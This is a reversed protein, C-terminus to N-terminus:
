GVLLGNVTSLGAPVLWGGGATLYSRTFVYYTDGGTTVTSQIDGYSPSGIVTLSPGAVGAITGSATGPVSGENFDYYALLNPASASTHEHIDQLVEASTREDSWVRVEDVAGGGAPDLTPVGSGDLSAASAGITFPNFSNTSNAGLKTGICTAGSWGGNSPCFFLTNQYQGNLYVTALKSSNNFTFAIHNWAGKTPAAITNVWEWTGWNGDMVAFQYTGNRCSLWYSYYRQVITDGTSSDCSSSTPKHWAEITWSKNHLDFTSVSSGYGIWLGQNGSFNLFTDTDSAAAIQALSLIGAGCTYDPNADCTPNAFAKTFDSGTLSRFADAPAIDANRSTLIAAAASVHAAAVSTGFDASTTAAEPSQAGTNSTSTVQNAADGGPASIDITAGYNSYDSRVGDRNTAGVTIVGNCNGPAYKSADDSANGAAAVLISGRAIAGDIAVQLAVPCMTEVAFSMNIVKSPNTNAPVGDVTGGSAWTVSAAIDSLLGGRWSLARVPQIRANPAIGTIGDDNAEAAIIGAMKTGHWSSSRTPSVDRWDGPDTPNDDRGLAGFTNTDVYDGDFAVPPANAQRSSALQEPNSVFDYGPVLQNELDPHSTIGTDIVAVTTNDGRAGAWANTMSTSSDGISVGYSDWLNWQDTAYQGDTPVTVTQALDDSNDTGQASTFFFQDPEAWAVQDDQALDTAIQEATALDVPESLEVLVADDTVKEAVTMDVTTREEGPVTTDGAAQESGPEFEVILGAVVGEVGTTPTAEVAEGPLASGARTAAVVEFSYAVGNRLGSVTLETAPAPLSVIRAFDEPGSARVYYGEPSAGADSALWSVTVENLGAEASTELVPLPCEVPSSTATPSPEV